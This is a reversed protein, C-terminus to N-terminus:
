FDYVHKYNQRSIIKYFDKELTEQPFEVIRNMEKGEDDLVIITPVNKINLEERKQDSIEPVIKDEDVGVLSINDRNFNVQDLIKYLYPVERQSDSCWMGLYIKIKFEENQLTSKIKELVEPDPQSSKYNNRFWENNISKNLSDITFEGLIVKHPAAEGELDESTENDQNTTNQDDVVAEISAESSTEYYFFGLVGLGILIAIIILLRKKM